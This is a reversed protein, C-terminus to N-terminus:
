PEAFFERVIGIFEDLQDHHVWHGADEIVIERLGFLRVLEANNHVFESESGGLLLYPTKLESWMEQFSQMSWDPTSRIRHYYDFKWVYGGEVARVAHKTLHKVLAPSLRKNAEYMRKECEEITPLVHPHFVETSRIQEVFERLRAAPRLASAPRGFGEISVLKEVKEPFACAFDTVVRGGMSHAVIRVPRGPSVTEVLKHIDSVHHSLQYAHGQTWDSDGHGRLDPAYISYEDILREAVFDWSRGHDRGGHVLLLPPKTDDGWVNYHIRVRASELFRSEPEIM